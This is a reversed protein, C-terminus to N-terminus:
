EGENLDQAAIVTLHIFDVEDVPPIALIRRCYHLTELAPMSKFTPFGARFKAPQNLHWGAISFSSDSAHSTLSNGGHIIRL